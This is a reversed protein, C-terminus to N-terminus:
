IQPQVATGEPAATKNDEIPPPTSYKIADCCLFLDDEKFKEKSALEKTIRELQFIEDILVHKKRFTKIEKYLADADNDPWCIIMSLESIFVGSDGEEPDDKLKKIVNLLLPLPANTNSNKRFPNNTQYKMMANLFVNQIKDDNKPVERVADILMHGTTSIEIPAEMAYFIFGFEMPLKYWTDFRSPWGAEFGAEKHQQPSNKIIYETDEVTFDDESNYIAKLRPDTGIFTPKYLKKSILNVAVEHIIQETLIQGEFPLICNLFDAIRAPNRMTTSFSLPKYEKEREKAM